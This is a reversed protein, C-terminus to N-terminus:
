RRTLRDPELSYQSDPCDIYTQQSIEGMNILQDYPFYLDNGSPEYDIRDIYTSLEFPGIEATRKYVVSWRNYSAHGNAAIWVHIRSHNDDYGQQIGNYTQANSSSWWCSSANVTRGGSHMYFNVLDPELQGNQNEFLRLSIHEWDSEHWTDAIAPLQERKDDM